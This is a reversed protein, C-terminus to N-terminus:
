AQSIFPESHTGKGVPARFVVIISTSPIFSHGPDRVQRIMARSSSLSLEACLGLGSQFVGLRRPAAADASERLVDM